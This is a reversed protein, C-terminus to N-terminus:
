QIINSEIIKVANYYSSKLTNESIKTIESIERFSLDDFYKMQFVLQQKESLKETLIQQLKRQIEDGDINEYSKIQNSIVEGIPQISRKKNKEILRIAENYAIRYMWTKLTSNEKFNEINRYIRIFTNQLVDNADEHNQAIKRIHWYLPEQYFDVLQSFAMEKHKRSKLAKLLEKDTM